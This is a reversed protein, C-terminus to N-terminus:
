LMYYITRGNGWKVVMVMDFPRFLPGTKAQAAQGTGAAKCSCCSILNNSRSDGQATTMEDSEIPM